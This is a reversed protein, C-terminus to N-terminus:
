PGIIVCLWDLDLWQLGVGTCFCMAQGRWSDADVDGVQDVQAQIIRNESRRMVSWPRVSLPPPRAVQYARCRREVLESVIYNINV